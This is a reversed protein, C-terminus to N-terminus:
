NYVAFHYFGEGLNELLDVRTSDKVVERRSYFIGEEGYMASTKWRYTIGEKHVEIDSIGTSKMKEVVAFAQLSDIKIEQAALLSDLSMYHTKDGEEYYSQYFGLAPEQGFTRRVLNIVTGNIVIYNKEPLVAINQISDLSTTLHHLKKFDASQVLESSNIEIEDSSFMYGVVLM